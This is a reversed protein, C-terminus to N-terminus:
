NSPPWQESECREGWVAELTQMAQRREDLRWLAEHFFVAAIRLRLRIQVLPATTTEVRGRKSLLSPYLATLSDLVLGPTTRLPWEAMPKFLRKAPGHWMSPQCVM